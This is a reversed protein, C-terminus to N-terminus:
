YKMSYDLYLRQNTSDEKVGRVSQLSEDSDYDAYIWRFSLGKAFPIAWKTDVSWWEEKATGGASKLASNQVGTGEAKAFTTSLGRVYDNLDLGLRVVWAEENTNTLDAGLLARTPFPNTGHDANFNREIWLEDTQTYAIGYTFMDVKWELDVFAAAGDLTIPAGATQGDRDINAEAQSVFLSGDGESTFYGGTLKLKSDDLKWTYAGKLGVKALYDKSVLYAAEGKFRSSKYNAGLGWVADIKDNRGDGNADTSITFEEFGDDHRRSWESFYFGSLTVNSVKYNSSVGSFTSPVARSGSSSLLLSKYKQRGFKVNGQGALQFDIYLQGILGINDDVAGDLNSADLPLINNGASGTSNLNQVMYGSVGLKFINQIIGTEYNVEVGEALTTDNSAPTEFERDFYITRFKISLKDKKTVGELASVPLANFALFAAVLTARVISFVTM